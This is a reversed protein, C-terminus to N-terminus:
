DTTTSNDIVEELEANEEVKKDVDEKEEDSESDNNAEPEATTESQEDTTVPELEKPEDESVPDKTEDINVNGDEVPNSPTKVSSNSNDVPASYAFSDNFPNVGFNYNSSNLGIRIIAEIDLVVPESNWQTVVYVGNGSPKYSVIEIKNCDEYEYIREIIGNNQKSIIVRESKARPCYSFSLIYSDEDETLQAYRSSGRVNGIEVINMINLVGDVNTNNEFYYKIDNARAYASCDYDNPNIVNSIETSNAIVTGKISDITLYEPDSVISVERTDTNITTTAPRAYCYAFSSNEICTISDPGFMEGIRISKAITEIAGTDILDGTDLSVFLGTKEYSYVFVSELESGPYNINTIYIYDDGIQFVNWAYTSSVYCFKKDNIKSVFDSVTVKGDNDTNNSIFASITENNWDYTRPDIITTTSVPETTTTETTTETTTSTTEETTTAETETTTSTTPETETSTSEVTTTPETTTASTSETTDVTTTAPETSTSTETTSSTTEAVTTTTTTTTYTKPAKSTVTSQKNNNGSSSNSLQVTKTSNKTDKTDSNKKETKTTAETSTQETTQTTKEKTSPEETTTTPETTAETTTAETTTVPTTTTVEYNSTSVVADGSNERSGCGTLLSCMMATAAVFAVIRENTKRM